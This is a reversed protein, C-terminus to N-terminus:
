SISIIKNVIQIALKKSDKGNYKRLERKIERVLENYINEKHNWDPYRQIESIIKLLAPRLSKPISLGNFVKIIDEELLKKPPNDIFTSNVKVETEFRIFSPSEATIWKAGVKKIHSMQHELEPFLTSENINFFNLEDLLNEKIEQSITISKKNVEQNLNRVSKTVKSNWLEFEDETINIAGSILFAGSQRILRSNSYSPM